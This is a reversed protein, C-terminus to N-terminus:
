LGLDSLSTATVFRISVAKLQDDPLERLRGMTQPSLPGFKTTLMAELLELRGEVRGEQIWENVSLSERMNWRKLSDSWLQHRGAADAFVRALGGYTARTRHQPEADALRKWREVTDVEGAGTMLAVWPLLARPRAGSEIEGLLVDASEGEANIERPTLATRLGAGPWDFTRGADGRGTLNVIVGGLHFRSGREDDPKKDLWIDYLYRGLRGFMRPDPEIQFEVAVAWPVGGATTQDVWAVTDGTRDDGDPFPINRTDLWRRFAFDTPPLQLAWALFAAPDLRAAFRAAKDFPNKRATTTL